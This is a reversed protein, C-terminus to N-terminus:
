AVMSVVGLAQMSSVSDLAQDVVQVVVLLDALAVRVVLSLAMQVEQGVM